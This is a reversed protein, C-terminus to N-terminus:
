FTRIFPVQNGGNKHRSTQPLDATKPVKLIQLLSNGTAYVNRPLIGGTESQILEGEHM